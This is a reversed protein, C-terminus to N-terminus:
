WNNKWVMGNWSQNVGVSTDNATADTIFATFGASPVPLANRQAITFNPTNINGNVDALQNNVSTIINKPINDNSNTITVSKQLILLKTYDGLSSGNSKICQIKVGNTDLFVQASQPGTQSQSNAAISITGNASTIDTNLIGLNTYMGISSNGTSNYQYIDSNAYNPIGGQAAQFYSEFYNNQNSGGFQLYNNFKKDGDYDYTLQGGKFDIYRNTNLVSDEIGFRMPAGGAAIKINGNIDALSDNISTIINKPINDNSRTLTVTSGMLKLDSSNLNTSSTIDAVANSLQFATAISSNFVGYSMGAGLASQYYETWNKLSDTLGVDFSKHYAGNGGYGIEVYNRQLSDGDFDFYFQKGGKMNMYRNQGIVSDEIGFRMPAGGASGGAHGAVFKAIALASPISMDSVFNTDKQIGTVTDNKLVFGKRMIFKDAIYTQADAYMSGLLAFILFAKKM